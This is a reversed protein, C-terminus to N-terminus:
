ADPDPFVVGCERKLLELLVRMDSLFLAKAADRALAPMLNQYSQTSLWNLVVASKDEELGALYVDLDEKQHELTLTLWGEFTEAHSTALASRSEEEGFMAALGHHEYAGTTPNRLGGFYVLRGFQTPIQSLTTRWVDAIPGRNRLSRLESNSM